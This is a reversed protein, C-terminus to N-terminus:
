NIILYGWNNISIERKSLIFQDLHITCLPEINACPGNKPRKIAIEFSDNVYYEGNSKIPVINNLFKNKELHIPEVLFHNIIRALNSYISFVFALIILGNIVKLYKIKIKLIDLHYSFIFTPILFFILCYVLGYRLQPFYFFWFIFNLIIFFNFFYNEKFYLKFNSKLNNFSIVRILGFFMVLFIIINLLIVNKFLKFFDPGSLYYKIWNEFKLFDNYYHYDLFIEKEYSSLSNYEDNYKNSFILSQKFEEKKKKNNYGHESKVYNKISISSLSSIYEPSGFQYKESSWTTEFCLTPIPYVLCSSNIINKAFFSFSLLFLFFLKRITFDNLFIKKNKIILYIPILAFFVMSFKSLIILSTISFIIFVANNEKDKNKLFDLFNVLLIIALLNTPIDNGLSGYRSCNILFYIISVLSILTILIDNENIMNIYLYVISTSAIRSSYFIYSDIGMFSNFQFASINQFISSHAYRFDFNSLGFIIKFKRILEIYPLHYLEYDNYSPSFVTIFSVSSCIIIFILLNSKLRIEKLSFAGLITFIWFFSNTINSHIPSFFNIVYSILGLFLSGYIFNNFINRDKIKLFKKLLYSYGYVNLIIFIPFIFLKLYIM